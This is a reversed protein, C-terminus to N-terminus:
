PEPSVQKRLAGEAVLTAVTEPMKITMPGGQPGEHLSGEEDLRQRRMNSQATVDADGRYFAGYGYSGGVGFFRKQQPDGLPGGALLLPVSLRVHPAGPDAATLSLPSSFPGGRRQGHSLFSAAVACAAAAAAPSPSPAALAWRAEFLSSPVSPAKGAVVGPPEWCRVRTAAICLPRQM